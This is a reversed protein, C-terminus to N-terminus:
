TEETAREERTVSAQAGEAAQEKAQRQTYEQASEHAAAYLLDTGAAFLIGGIIDSLWHVGSILRGFVMFATYAAIVCLVINRATKNRIRDKLQLMATPMVCAALITTSSPYSAELIGDILVPRYNIVVREFLLYVVIVAIYFVGLAIISRDVKFLSRRKILQVFGLVAFGFATAVPIIGLWDTILYLTMNVGTLKHVAENMAAFGVSSGNPGIQKIDVFSVAVTWAIFAFIFILGLLAETRSKRM